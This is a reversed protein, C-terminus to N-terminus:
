VNVERFGLGGGAFEGEVGLVLLVLFVGACLFYVGKCWLRDFISVFCLAIAVDEAARAGFVGRRRQRAPAFALYNSLPHAVQELLPPQQARQPLLFQLAFPPLYKPTSKRENSFRSAVRRRRVKLSLRLVLRVHTSGVLQQTQPQLLQRLQQRSHYRSVGLLCERLDQPKQCELM